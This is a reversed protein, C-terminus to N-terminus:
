KRKIWERLEPDSVKIGSPRAQSIDVEMLRGDQGLVKITKPGAPPACAIDKRKGPLLGKLWIGLLALMGISALAKRRGAPNDKRPQIENMYEKKSPKIM